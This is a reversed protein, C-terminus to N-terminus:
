LLNQSWGIIQHGWQFTYDSKEYKNNELFDKLLTCDFCKIPYPSVVFKIVQCIVFKYKSQNSWIIFGHFLTGIFYIKKKGFMFQNWCFIFFVCIYLVQPLYCCTNWCVIMATSIKSTYIESIHLSTIYCTACSIM